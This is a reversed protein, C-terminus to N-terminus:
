SWGARRLLAPYRPHPRFVAFIPFTKLMMMSPDGEEVARELLTMGTELDGLAASAQALVSAQVYGARARAELADRLTEARRRQGAAACAVVLSMMSWPHRDSLSAEAVAAAIAEAGQGRQVYAMTLWHYALFHPTEIDIAALLAEIAEDFRGAALLQQGFMVRSLGTAGAMTAARAALDRPAEMPGDHCLRVFALRARAMVNEPDLALAHELASVGAAFDRHVWLLCTGRAVHSEPADPALRMAEAAAADVLTAARAAPLFGYFALQTYSEALAAYAGAHRPDIAIAQRFQELGQGLGGGQPSWAHLGELYLQDARERFDPERAAPVAAADRIRRTLEVVSEHPPLDLQQAVLGEYIRAQQLAGSRDGAAVLAEMLDVILRENLPEIAARRRFWQAAAGPDSQQLARRALRDLAESLQQELARREEMMWYEFEPVSPLRFGELFPGGYRLVARRDQRHSVLDAFERVDSDAEDPNLRVDRTGLFLDAVGADRRLAYLAQKMANRGPEGERDPWLVSQLTHRSIGREGARAVMALLAMRRPQATAGLVPQGDRTVTLGGLAQIRLVSAM